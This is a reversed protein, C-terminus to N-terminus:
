VAVFSLTCGDIVQGALWFRLISEPLLLAVRGSKVALVRDVSLQVASPEITLNCLGAAPVAKVPPCLEVCITVM